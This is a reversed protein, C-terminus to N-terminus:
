RPDFFRVKAPNELKGIVRVSKPIGDQFLVKGGAVLYGPVQFDQLSFGRAGQNKALTEFAPSGSRKALLRDIDTVKVKKANPHSHVSWGLTFMGEPVRNRDFSCTVSANITGLIIGLSGDYKSGVVGCVEVEHEATYADLIPAIRLVFDDIKEGPEGYYTGITTWPVQPDEPLLKPAEHALASGITAVLLFLSLLIRNMPLDESQILTWYVGKLAVTVSYFNGTKYPTSQM